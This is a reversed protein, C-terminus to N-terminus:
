GGDNLRYGLHPETLICRPHAPDDELKVRLRRIIGKVYDTADSYQPGWVRQLIQRTTIVRGANAALEALVAYELPTLAVPQGHHMVRRQDTDIVLDHCVVLHSAIRDGRRLVARVRALLESLRFPKVLYDDAGADLVSVIDAEAGKVSLVIIPAASTQRIRRCVELGGVGPIVLDLLVLHPATRQFRALAADSDAATVVEYGHAQLAPALAATIGPDDDVLLIRQGGSM